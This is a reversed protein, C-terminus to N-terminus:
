FKMYFTWHAFLVLTKCWKGTSLTIQWPYLDILDLSFLRSVRISTKLIVSVQLVDLNMPLDQLSKLIDVSSSHDQFMSICVHVASIYVHM